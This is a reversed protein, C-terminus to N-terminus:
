ISHGARERAGHRQFNEGLLNRLNLSASYTSYSYFALPRLEFTLNGRPIIPNEMTAFSVHPLRRRRLRLSFHMVGLVYLVQYALQAHM